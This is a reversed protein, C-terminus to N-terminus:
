KRLIRRSVQPRAWPRRSRNMSAAYEGCERNPCRGHLHTEGTSPVHDDQLPDRSFGPRLRGRSKSSIELISREDYWPVLLEFGEGWCRTRQSGIEGAPPASHCAANLM